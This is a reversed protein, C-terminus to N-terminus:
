PGAEHPDRQDALEVECEPAPDPFRYRQRVVQQACRRALHHHAAPRREPELTSGQLLVELPPEDLRELGGRPRTAAAGYAARDGYTHLTLLPIPYFRHPAGTLAGRM